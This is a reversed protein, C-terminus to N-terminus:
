RPESAIEMLTVARHTYSAVFLIVLGHIVPEMLMNGSEMGILIFVCTVLIFTMVVAIAVYRIMLPVSLCVAKEIFGFGSGRQNAHYAILLGILSIVSIIVSSAIELAVWVPQDDSAFVNDFAFAVFYMLTLLFFYNRKEKESVESRAFRSALKKDNWFQM